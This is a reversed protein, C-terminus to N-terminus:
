TKLNHKGALQGCAAVIDAGLSYRVTLAAVRPRMAEAFTQLRPEASPRLTPDGDPGSNYRILNLHAPIGELWAALATLDADTDTLGDLMLYEIMLRRDSGAAIDLMARRLDDLPYQRALPILQERIEQRASHLSLAQYVQPLQERWRRMAEPIGVTSITLHRDSIGFWAPSRFREVAERVATENHFPEGMGMFVINRVQRGEPQLLRNAQVLQDIIEGAELNRQLGGRGTACFRCRVACGVQTSVCLSTRGSKIRLIVAEVLFGDHTRLVLKSAGDVESDHREVLELWQWRVETRFAAEAAPERLAAIAEDVPRSHKCFRNRCDRLRQPELRLRRRWAAMQTEDYFSIMAMLKGRSM